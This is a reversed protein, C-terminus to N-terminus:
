SPRRVLNATSAVVDSALSRLAQAAAPDIAARSLARMAARVLRRVRDEVEARAGTRDVLETVWAVDEDTVSAGDLISSLRERDADCAREYATRVLVTRKRQRVDGGVPKGTRAEDGFLDLLDDALQFAFGLRGGFFGLAELTPSTAGGLMAGAVLPAVFSYEATKLRIAEALDASPIEGIGRVTHFVDLCEGQAAQTASDLVRQMARRGRAAPVGSRSMTQVATAFLLDGGLLALDTALRAPASAPLSGEIAAHVSPGGRRTRADDVIDDHVLMFAHLIEVGAAFRHVATTAPTRAVAEYALLCLRPRIRKGGRECVSRAAATVPALAAPADDLTALAGALARELRDPDDPRPQVLALVM